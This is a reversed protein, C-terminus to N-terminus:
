NAQVPQARSVTVPVGAELGPIGARTVQVGPELSSSPKAPRIVVPASQAETAKSVQQQPTLWGAKLASVTAVCLMVFMAMAPLARVGLSATPMRLPASRQEQGTPVWTGFSETLYRYDARGGLVPDPLENIVREADVGLFRSYGRLFSRAYAMNGFAAYNGDELQQLRPLPIRTAHAVDALTMRRAERTARLKQSIPAEM